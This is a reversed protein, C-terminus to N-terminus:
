MKPQNVSIRTYSDYKKKPFLVWYARFPALHSSPAAEDFSKGDESLFYQRIQGENITVDAFTGKFDSTEVCQPTLVGRSSQFRLALGAKCRVLYPVGGQLSSASEFKLRGETMSVYSALEVGATQAAFPLCLTQWSDDSQAERVYELQGQEVAIPRDTFFPMRDTLLTHRMLRNQDSCSVVFHWSSPAYEAYESNVFIPINSSPSFSVFPLSQLPLPVGTLDLCRISAVDIEALAVADWGGTLTCVGNTACQMLPEQAVPAWHATHRAEDATCLLWSRGNSDYCLYRPEEEQTCIYGRVIQWPTEAPVPQLTYDLYSGERELVFGNTGRWHCTWIDMDACPALSGDALAYHKVEEAQGNQLRMCRNDYLVIRQGQAPRTVHGPIEVLRQPKKYFYFESGEFNKYNDYNYYVGNGTVTSTFSLIRDSDSPDALVFTGPTEGSTLVWQALKSPSAEFKLGLANDTKRALYNLTEADQLVIHMDDPRSIKWLLRKNTFEIIEKPGTTSCLADMKKNKLLTHTMFVLKGEANQIACTYWGLDELESQQQIRMFDTPLELQETEDQAYLVLSGWLLAFFFISFLQKM